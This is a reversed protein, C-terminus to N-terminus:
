IQPILPGIFYVKYDARACSEKKESYEFPLQFIFIYKKMLDFHSFVKLITSLDFYINKPLDKHKDWNKALKPKSESAHNDFVHNQPKKM